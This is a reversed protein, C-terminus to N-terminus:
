EELAGLHEAQRRAGLREPDNEQFGAGVPDGDDGCPDSANRLDDRVPLRSQEDLRLIAVRERLRELADQRVGARRVLHALAQVLADGGKHDSSVM